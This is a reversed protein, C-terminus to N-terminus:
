KSEERKRRYIVESNKLDEQHYVGGDMTNNFHIRFIYNKSGGEPRTLEWQTFNADNM